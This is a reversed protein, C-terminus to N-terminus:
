IYSWRSELRSLSLRGVQITECVTEQDHELGHKQLYIFDPIDNGEIIEWVGRPKTSHVHEPGDWAIPPYPRAMKCLWVHDPTVPILQPRYGELLVHGSTFVVGAGGVLVDGLLEKIPLYPYLQRTIHYAVVSKEEDGRLDYFSSVGSGMYRADEDGQPIGPIGVALWNIVQLLDVQTKPFGAWKVLKISEELWEKSVLQTSAAHNVGPPLHVGMIEPGIHYQDAISKLRQVFILHGGRLQTNVGLIQDFIMYFTGRSVHKLAVDWWTIVHGNAFVVLPESPDIGDDGWPPFPVHLIFSYGSKLTLVLSFLRTPDPNPGRLQPKDVDLYVQTSDGPVWLGGNLSSIRAQIM